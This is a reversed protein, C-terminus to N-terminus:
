KIGMKMNFFYFYVSTAWTPHMCTDLKPWWLCIKKPVGSPTGSNASGQRNHGLTMCLMYKKWSEVIKKAAKCTVFVLKPHGLNPPVVTNSMKEQKKSTGGLKM